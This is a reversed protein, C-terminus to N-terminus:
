TYLGPQAIFFSSRDGMSRILSWVLPCWISGWDFSLFLMDTMRDKLSESYEWPGERFMGRRGLRVLGLLFGGMSADPLCCEGTLLAVNTCELTYSLDFKLLLCVLISAM